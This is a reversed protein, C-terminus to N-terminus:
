DQINYASGCEQEDNLGRVASSSRLMHCESAGVSTASSRGVLLCPTLGGFRFEEGSLRIATNSALAKSLHGACANRSGLVQWGVNAMM